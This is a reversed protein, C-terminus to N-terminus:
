RKKPTDIELINLKEIEEDPDITFNEYNELDYRERMEELISPEIIFFKKNTDEHGLSDSFSSYSVTRRWKPKDERQFFMEQKEKKIAEDIKTQEEELERRDEDLYDIHKRKRLVLELDVYHSICHGRINRYDRFPKGIDERSLIFSSKDKYWQKMIDSMEQSYFHNKKTIFETYESHYDGNNMRDMVEIMFGDIFTTRYYNNKPNLNRLFEVLEGNNGFILDTNGDFYSNEDSQKMAVTFDRGELVPYKEMLYERFENENKFQTTFNDIMIQYTQYQDTIKGDPDKMIPLEVTIPELGFSTVVISFMDKSFKLVVM